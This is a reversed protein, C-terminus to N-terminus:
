INWKNKIYRRLGATEKITLPAVRKYIIVEYIKGLFATSDDPTYSTGSVQTGLILRHLTNVTPSNLTDAISQTEVNVGNIDMTVNFPTRGSTRPISFLTYTPNTSVYSGVGFDYNTSNVDYRMCYRNPQSPTLGNTQYDWRRIHYGGATTSVYGGSKSIVTETTGTPTSNAFEHVLAIYFSKVILNGGVIEPGTLNCIEGGNLFQAGSGNSFEVGNNGNLSNTSLRPRRISATQTFSFNNSSRDDWRAIAGGNTTVPNNSADYLGTTSDLWLECGPISLPTIVSKSSSLFNNVLVGM